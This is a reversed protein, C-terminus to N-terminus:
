KWWKLHLPDRTASELDFSFQFEGPVKSVKVLVTNRGQRINVSV